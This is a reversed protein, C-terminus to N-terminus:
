DVEEINIILTIYSNDLSGYMSDEGSEAFCQYHQKGTAKRNKDNRAFGALPRSSRPETERSDECLPVIEIYRSHVVDHKKLAKSLKPSQKTM